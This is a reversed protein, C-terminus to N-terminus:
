EKRTATTMYDGLSQGVLTTATAPGELNVDVDMGQDSYYFSVALGDETKKASTLPYTTGDFTFSGTLAGDTEALVMDGSVTGLPTDKVTVDWTGAYSPVVAAVKPSCATLLFVFSCLLLSAIRM